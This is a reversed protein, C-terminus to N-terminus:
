RGAQKARWLLSPHQKLTTALEPEIELLDPRIEGDDLLKDLFACEKTNLPLLGALAQRTEDTIRTLMERQESKRTIQQQVLLPFLQRSAEQTEPEIDDTTVTRWDRPNMAGYIVFAQRLRAPDTPM